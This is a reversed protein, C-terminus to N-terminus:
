RGRARRILQRPRAPGGAVTYTGRLTDGIIRADFVAVTDTGRADGLTALRLRDAELTGLLFRETGSRERGSVTSRPAGSTEVWLDYVVPLGPADAGEWRADLPFRDRETVTVARRVLPLTSGFLGIGGRVSSILGTGGFPDNSSRNYDYFNADIAGVNVLQDFGPYWVAPLTPAFFNRLAGSLAFRTSDSFLFWPGNPTDVRIAYTRAGVVPDWALRLTDRSRDLTDAQAESGRGPAWGAAASPVTTEGTVVRGDPAVIVLRYTGGPAIDLRARPVVYRGTGAGRRRTEDAPVGLTDGGAAADLRALRVTAGSLPEGGATRIPDLPDFRLTTDIAVRGTLSSEVLIVQEDADPNLVAHVVIASAPPELTETAFECAGLLLAAGLAFATRWGHRRTTRPTRTAVQTATPTAMRATVGATRVASVM